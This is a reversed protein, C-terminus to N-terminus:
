GKPKRRPFAFTSHKDVRYKGGTVVQKYAIGDAMYWLAGDPSRATLWKRPEPLLTWGDPVLPLPDPVGFILRLGFQRM